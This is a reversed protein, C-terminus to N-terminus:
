HRTKANLIDTWKNVESSIRNTDPHSVVISHGHSMPVVSNHSQRSPHMWVGYISPSRFHRINRYLKSSRFHNFLLMVSLTRMFTLVDM